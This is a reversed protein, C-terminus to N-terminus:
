LYSKNRRFLDSAQTYYEISFSYMNNALMIRAATRLKEAAHDLKGQKKLIFAIDLENKIAPYSISLLNFIDGQNM